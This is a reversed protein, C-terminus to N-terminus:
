SKFEPGRSSAEFEIYSAIVKSAQDEQRWRGLTPNYASKGFTLQLPQPLILFEKVLHYHSV